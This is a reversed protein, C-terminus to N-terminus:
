ELLLFPQSTRGNLFPLSLALLYVTPLVTWVTPGASLHSVSEEIYQHLLLLHVGQYWCLVPFLLFALHVCWMENEYLSRIVLASHGPAIAQAGFCIGAYRIPYACYVMSELISHTCHYHQYWTDPTGRLAVDICLTSGQSVCANGMEDDVGKSLWGNCELRMANVPSHWTWQVRHNEMDVFLRPIDCDMM